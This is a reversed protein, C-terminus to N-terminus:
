FNTSVRWPPCRCERGPRNGTSFFGKAKAGGCSSACRRRGPIINRKSVPWVAPLRPRVRLEGRRIHLGLLEEVAAQYFWGAAGTYWSWGGRGKQHPHSYVDAALVYPEVRYVATDRGGPLLARILEYGEEEM